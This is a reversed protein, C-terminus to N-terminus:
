ASGAQGADSTTTRRHRRDLLAGAGFGIVGALVAGVGAMPNALNQWNGSLFFYGLELVLAVIIPVLLARVDAASSGM